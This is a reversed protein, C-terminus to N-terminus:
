LVNDFLPLIKKQSKNALYKSGLVVFLHTLSIHYLPNQAIERKLEM